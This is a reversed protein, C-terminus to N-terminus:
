PVGTYRMRHRLFPLEVVRYSLWAVPFLAAFVALAVAEAVEWTAMTPVWRGLIAALGFVVFTHLLYISFSAAGVAEVLRWYWRRSFVLADYYAILFSFFAAEITPIVIWVSRAGQTAYYGGIGVFWQYFGFFAVTAVGMWVHRGRLLGRFEWAAIGLVFQDIRGAITAYAYHAVDGGAEYILM